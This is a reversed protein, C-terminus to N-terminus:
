ITINGDHYKGWDEISYRTEDNHRSIEENDRRKTYGNDASTEDDKDSAEEYDNEEDPVATEYESEDGGINPNRRPNNSDDITSGQGFQNDSQQTNM